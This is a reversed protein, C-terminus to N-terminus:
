NTRGLGYRVMNFTSMNRILVPVPKLLHLNNETYSLYIDFFWPRQEGTEILSIINLRCGTEMNDGFYIFEESSECLMLDDLKLPQIAKLKGNLEHSVSLFTM